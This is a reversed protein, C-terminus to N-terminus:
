RRRGRGQGRGRGRGLGRGPGQGPGQGSGGDPGGFGRGFAQCAGGGRPLGGQGRGYVAGEAGSAPNANYKDPDIRKLQDKLPQQDAASQAAPRCRGLGRGTLPGEGQPGKGNMGPM